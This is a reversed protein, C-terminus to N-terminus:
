FADPGFLPETGTLALLRSVSHSTGHLNVVTGLHEGDDRARLLARLGSCDCFTLDALDIGLYAPREALCRAVAHRLQSTADLDLEGTLTLAAQGDHVSCRAEFPVTM